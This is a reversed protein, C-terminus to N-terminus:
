PVGEVTIPRLTNMPGNRCCIYRLDDLGLQLSQRHGALTTLCWAAQKVRALIALGVRDARLAAGQRCRRLDFVARNAGANDGGCADAPRWCDAGVVAVAVLHWLPRVLSTRPRENCGKDSVM